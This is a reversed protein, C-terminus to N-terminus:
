FHNANIYRKNTNSNLINVRVSQSIRQPPRKKYKKRKRVGTKITTTAPTTALSTDTKLTDEKPLTAKQESLVQSNMTELQKENTDILAKKDEKGFYDVVKPIAFAAGAAVLGVGGAAAAGKLIDSSSFSTKKEIVDGIKAGLSIAKSPKDPLSEIAKEVTSQATPSSKLIGYGVAASSAGIVGGTITKPAVTKAIAPIAGSAIVLGAAPVSAAGTLVKGVTSSSFEKSTTKKTELGTVKDIGSLILNAPVTVATAFVKEFTGFTAKGVSKLLGGLVM